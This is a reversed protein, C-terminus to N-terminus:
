RGAESRIQYRSGGNNATFREVNLGNKRLGAIAARVTHPLWGLATTLEALARGDNRRLLAVIKEKKWKPPSASRSTSDVRQRDTNQLSTKSM